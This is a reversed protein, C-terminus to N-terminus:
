LYKEQVVSRQVQDQWQMVPKIELIDDLRDQERLRDYIQIWACPVERNVECGGQGAGGCPGNFLNKACRSIPCIGGTYGIVCDGCVRCREEYVGLSRDVGVAITNLVPFVPKSPFKEAILQVGASCAMSIVADFDKVVMDLETLFKMNCAREVTYASFTKACATQKFFTELEDNLLDVEKQGGALCISTCGGCGVNLIRGYRELSHVIEEFPKQKAKIM